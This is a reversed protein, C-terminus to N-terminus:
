IVHFSVSFCNWCAVWCYRRWWCTRRTEKKREKQKLLSLPATTGEGRGVTQPLFDRIVSLFKDGFNFCCCCFCPMNAHDYAYNDRRVDSSTAPCETSLCVQMDLVFCPLSTTPPHRSSLNLCSETVKGGSLRSECHRRHTPLQSPFPSPLSPSLLSPPNLFVFVCISRLALVMDYSMTIWGSPETVLSRGLHLFHPPPPYTKSSSDQSSYQWACGEVVFVVKSRSDQGNRLSLSRLLRFSLCVNCIRGTQLKSSRTLQSAEFVKHDPSSWLM